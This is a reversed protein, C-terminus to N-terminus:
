QHSKMFDSPTMGTEKKFARYFSAKSRFGVEQGLGLISYKHSDPALVRSKFAQVRYQNILDNFNTNLTENIMRSLSNIPLGLHGALKAVTISPDEYLKDKELANLIKDKKQILDSKTFKFNGIREAYTEVKKAYKLLYFYGLLYICLAKFVGMPKYILYSNDDFRDVYFLAVPVAILLFGILVCWLVVLTKLWKKVAEFDRLVMKAESSVRYILVTYISLQILDVLALTLGISQILPINEYAWEMNSRIYLFGSTFLIGDLIFSPLFHALDSVRFAKLPDKIYLVHLYALPGFALGFDMPIPFRANFAHISEELLGQLLSLSFLLVLIGFFFHARRRPKRFLIIGALVIGQVVALLFYFNSSNLSTDIM